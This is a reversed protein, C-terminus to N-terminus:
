NLAAVPEDSSDGPIVDCGDVTVYLYARPGLEPTYEHHHTMSIVFPDDVEELWVAFERLADSLTRASFEFHVPFMGALHRYAM